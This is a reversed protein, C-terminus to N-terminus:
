TVGILFNINPTNMAQMAMAASECAGIVFGILVVALVNIGSVVAVPGTTSILVLRPSM